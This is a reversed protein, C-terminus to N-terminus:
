CSAQGHVTCGFGGAFDDVFEAKKIVPFVPILQQNIKATTHRRQWRMIGALIVAQAAALRHHMECGLGIISLNGKM